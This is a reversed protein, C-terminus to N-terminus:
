CWGDSAPTNCAAKLGLPVVHTFVATASQTAPRLASPARHLLNPWVPSGWVLRIELGKRFRAADFQPLWLLRVSAFTLAPLPSSSGAEVRVNAPRPWWLPHFTCSEEEGGLCRM